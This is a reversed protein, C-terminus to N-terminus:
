DAKASVARGPVFALPGHQHPTWQVNWKDEFARRNMDWLEHYEGTEILKKFSAQGAHHVFVDAACVVRRGISRMVQAYDDDEFLGIGFREDLPGVREYTDRRMAVCFMALMGIDAIQGEYRWAREFAFLEMQGWTGYPVDVKAENGAFNTVPGVVGIEPDDLHRVLRPLWGAPVVTDNNLVVLYRGRSEALGQNNAFEYDVANRVLVTPRGSPAWKDLLRQASVILLDCKRVLRAEGEVVAHKIGEFHDWDDMCDYVIPWGWSRGADLAVNTWSAIM